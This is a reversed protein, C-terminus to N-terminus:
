PKTTIVSLIQSDLIFTCLRGSNPNVFPPNYDTSPDSLIKDGVKYDVVKDGVELITGLYDHFTKVSSEIPAGTLDNKPIILGSETQDQQVPLEVLVKSGKIEFITTM